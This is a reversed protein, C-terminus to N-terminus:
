ESATWGIVGCAVRPGAAGTPQSVLDDEGAHVILGRGIISGAGDLTLHSDVRDISANGEADAEVNGLDGAHRMEGDPSGHDTAHPNFHGGASTGDAASCDGFQHIHFGHNGPTLGSFTASIHVGDAQQTFVVQGSVGSENKAELNASATAAEQALASTAPGLALILTILSLLTRITM